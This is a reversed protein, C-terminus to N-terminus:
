IVEIQDSWGSPRGVPCGWQAAIANQLLEDDSEVWAPPQSSHARWHGDDHLVTRIREADTWGEEDAPLNITTTSQGRYRRHIPTGDSDAGIVERVAVNGLQVIPM